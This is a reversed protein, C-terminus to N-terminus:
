VGSDYASLGYGMDMGGASRRKLDEIFYLMAAVM